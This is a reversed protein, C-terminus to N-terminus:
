RVQRVLNLWRYLALEVRLSAYLGVAVVGAISELLSVEGSEFTAAQFRSKCCASCWTTTQSPIRVIAKKSGGQHCSAAHRNAPTFRAAHAV